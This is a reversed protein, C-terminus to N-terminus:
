SREDGKRERAFSSPTRYALSQKRQDRGGKAGALPAKLKNIEASSLLMFAGKKLSKPLTVAGFRIRILRNISINLSQFIRRVERNRGENIVVRYWHNAHEGGQYSIRQLRAPGDELMVGQLLEAIQAESIKGLVRVAYEREFGYRPHMLQNALAGDNTFLLLGSTNFDLRGVMIWRGSKPKPLTAFVSPRGEPDKQSCIEGTPKHYLLVETLAAARTFALTLAKNDLLIQDHPSIRAGLQAVHGNIQIRGQKIWAEITRRSGMGEASLVKQIRTGAKDPTQQDKNLPVSIV